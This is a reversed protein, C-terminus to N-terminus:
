FLCEFSIHSNVLTYVNLCFPFLFQNCRKTEYHFHFIKLQWTSFISLPFPVASIFLYGTKNDANRRNFLVFSHPDIFYEAQFRIVRFYWLTIERALSVCSWSWTMYTVILFYWYICTFAFTSSIFFCCLVVNSFLMEKLNTCVILFYYWIISCLINIKQNPVTIVM